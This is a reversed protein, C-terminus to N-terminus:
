NGTTKRNLKQLALDKLDKLQPPFEIQNAGETELRNAVELAKEYNGELYFGAAILYFNYAPGTGLVPEYKRWLLLSQYAEDWRKARIYEAALNLHPIPEQPYISAAQRYIEIGSSWVRVQLFTAFALAGLIGVIIGNALFERKKQAAIWTCVFDILYALGLGLCINTQYLRYEAFPNIMQLISSTPLYCIYYLLIFFVAKPKKRFNKLCFIALALSGTLSILALSLISASMEPAAHIISQRAPNFFLIIYLIQYYLQTLFYTVGDYIHFGSTGAYQSSPDHLLLHIPIIFLTTALVLGWKQWNLDTIKRRNLIIEYLLLSPAILLCTEKTFLSAILLALLGGMRSLSYKSYYAFCALYFFCQLLSIRGMVYAVSQVQLPHLLFIATAVVVLRYRQPFLRKLWSFLLFGNLLHLLINFIKFSWAANPSIWWNLAFSINQWLRIQRLGSFVVDLPHRLDHLGVRLVIQQFDDYIFQGPLGFLYVVITLVFTAPLLLDLFSFQSKLRV